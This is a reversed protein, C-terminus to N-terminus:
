LDGRSVLPVHRGTIDAELDKLTPVMGSSTTGMGYSSVEMFDAECPLELHRM